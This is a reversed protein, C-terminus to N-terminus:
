SQKNNQLKKKQLNSKNKKELYRGKKEKLLGQIKQKQKKKRLNHYM